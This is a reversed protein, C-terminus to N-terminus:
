VNEVDWMLRMFDEEILRVKWNEGELKLNPLNNSDNVYITDFEFDRTSIRNKQFWGDLMLNDKELDDTLKRWVILVKEKKGNNPQNPDAPVWGEVKRFWWPGNEDQKIRGEIVLRTRQDDPLEPDTERKFKSNFIQPTAIHTVRLGILYNFTEILDVNRITYEDSGPKKIKLQYSEPNTFADINLLSQSGWTEVDLLYNLMYDEKLGANTEIANQRVSNEDFRLNNLTDEYSELRIYKFCHSLSSSRSQPKGGKWSDCYLAKKIRPILVTDFYKGMDVLIFKRQGNDIRNLNILAQGSTGSGAFYDLFWGIHDQTSYFLWEMLKSPKPYDILGGLGLNELQLSGDSKLSIISRLLFSEVDKLYTISSPQTNESAAYWIRGKIMSGDPLKYEPGNKEAKRFTDVTWRWGKKPIPTPKGTVPNIVEYRPGETKPNPWAMNIKGWLEYNPDLECYLTIGRDYGQKKYFKKLQEKVNILSLGQQKSKTILDYIEEIGDKRMVFTQDLSRRMGQNKAFLYIYDHINGIGKDNKPVRKNWTITEVHNNQGFTQILLQGLDLFENEDCSVFYAGTDDILPISMSTAQNFMSLWSSSKYSDKYAFDDDGTNYPPDIYVCKVQERYRKQLLNLAQFNESHIMLSDFQNDFNEISAILCAKFAEDFFRTDLVLKNNAKLFEVTLPKSFSPNPLDHKIADIAFLKVWEDHQAEKAIIEPYLEEPVRDLTICYNTEVVFKKKLWLKKQFDELQALFDILKGAIKRLVRLKELYTEVVPIEANEIDDLRMVENKIYFDLERKLFGGLEKHIFYDYTNRATYKNIYKALLTRNNDKDTPALTELLKQYEKAGAIKKIEEFITKVSEANRKERWTNEQGSKEPDQRYEFHVVLEGETNLEVPKGKHIIFYRKTAESAKIDGHEGEAAEVIQFHAMLPKPSDDVKIDIQDRKNLLQVEKAQRLDFTFNNFYEATKIYYQDANAWHLKVEEGNYPIAFPAAKGSTERTFYRRSIFDGNHYYREFFRYLHDYVEGESNATDKVADLAAKAKKVPASEEPNKVGYEKAQEIAKEYAAQLEAKRTDDARGFAEEVIKLLDKELFNLVQDSKAHMIKFFGFDLDPQDLQFLEKLKNILRQRLQETTPM